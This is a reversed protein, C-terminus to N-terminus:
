YSVCRSEVSIIWVSADIFRFCLALEIQSQKASHITCQAELLQFQEGGGSIIKHTYASGMKFKM